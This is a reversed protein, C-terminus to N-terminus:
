ENCYVCIASNIVTSVIVPCVRTEVKDTITHAYIHKAALSERDCEEHNCDDRRWSVKELGENVSFIGAFSNNQSGLVDLLLDIVTSIKKQVLVGSEEPKM